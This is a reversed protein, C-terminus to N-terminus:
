LGYRGKTKLWHQKVQADTWSTSLMFNQSIDGEYYISNRSANEAAAESGDAVFGWRRAGNGFYAFSNPWNRDVEGDVYFRIYGGSSSAVVAGFHWNGDNLKTNGYVDYCCTVNSRGAFTLAGNGAINWNIVESRDWDLWSWNSFTYSPFASGDEYTTRFWTGCTLEALRGDKNPGHEGNVGYNLNRIYGYQSTGNFTWYGTNGLQTYVPSGVMECNAKNPSTSTDEHHAASKWTTGDIYKVNGDYFCEIYKPDVDLVPGYFTSM